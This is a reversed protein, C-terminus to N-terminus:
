SELMKVRFQDLESEIIGIDLLLNSCKDQFTAGEYEKEIYEILDKFSSGEDGSGYKRQGCYSFSTLEYDRIIDKKSVGLAGELIAIVTGTRDAGGWCHVYVPKDELVSSIIKSFAGKYPERKGTIGMYASIEYRNYEAYDKMPYDATEVENSNRLDVETRIGEQRLQRVGDATIHVDHIGDLEGGRYILGYKIKKGDATKWGGIDRVNYVGDITLTRIQGSVKFSHAASIKGDSVTRYYYTRGPILNEILNLGPYGNVQYSSSFDPDNSVVITAPRLLFVLYGEPQDVRRSSNNDPIGTIKYIRIPLNEVNVVLRKYILVGCLVVLIATLVTVM